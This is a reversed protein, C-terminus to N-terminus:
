QIGGSGSDLAAGTRLPLPNLDFGREVLVRELRKYEAFSDAWVGVEIRHRAPTTGRLLADVAARADEMTALGRRTTSGPGGPVVQTQGPALDVREVGGEAVFLLIADRADDRFRSVRVFSTTTPTTALRREVEARQATLERARELHERAERRAARVADAREALADILASLEERAAAIERDLEALRAALAPDGAPPLAEIETELTAADRLLAAVRAAERVESSAAGRSEVRMPPSFIVIMLALFMVVGFTNALADLFLDFADEVLRGSEPAPRRRRRRNM